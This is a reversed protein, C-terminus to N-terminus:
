SSRARRRARALPHAQDYVRTLQDMSVHTYRQTTALSNHGLLEQIARLDAGGELMHTACSHRLAHPHLDGRGAGAAGYRRVLKQVWRVSLRRGARNLLLASPHQNKSKGRLEGRHELYARLARDAAGGIPVLRQKKGKGTVRLESEDLSVDDLDLGVLESVRLGSGYLLELLAADRLKQARPGPGTLPAELVQALSDADVLKPLPRSLKPSKLLAGPNQRCRGERELYAFLGRISALKRALSAPKVSESLRALFRRLLLRDVDQIGAEARGVESVFRALQELDRRYAGVTHESLRREDALHEVFRAIAPLLGDSRHGM